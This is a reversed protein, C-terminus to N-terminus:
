VSPATRMNDMRAALIFGIGIYAQYAAQNAADVSLRPTRGEERIRTCLQAVLASAYGCRRHTPAVYVHDIYTSTPSLDELLSASAVVCNDDDTWTYITANKLDSRVSQSSDFPRQTNSEDQLAQRHSILLDIDEPVANRLSGVVTRHEPSRHLELHLLEKVVRYNRGTLNQLAQATQRSTPTPAFIGPLELNHQTLYCCLANIAASPGQSLILQDQPTLFATQLTRNGNDHVSLCISDATGSHPSLRLLAIDEAENALWSERYTQLFASRSPWLKVAPHNTM